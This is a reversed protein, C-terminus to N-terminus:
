FVQVASVYFGPSTQSLTLDLIPMLIGATPVLPPLLSFFLMTTFKAESNIISLVLIDSFLKNESWFSSQVTFLISYIQYSVCMCDICRKM